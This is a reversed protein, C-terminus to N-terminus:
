RLDIKWESDFDLGFSLAESADASSLRVIVLAKGKDSEITEAEIETPEGVRSEIQQRLEQLDSDSAAEPNQLHERAPDWRGAVVLRTFGEAVADPPPVFLERDEFYTTGAVTLGGVIATAALMGLLRMM